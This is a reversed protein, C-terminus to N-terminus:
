KNGFELRIVMNFNSKYRHFLTQRIENQFGFPGLCTYTILERSVGPRQLRCKAGVKHVFTFMRRNAPTERFRQNLMYM